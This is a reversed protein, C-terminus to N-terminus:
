NTHGKMPWRVWQKKAAASWRVDGRRPAWGSSRPISSHPGMGEETQHVLEPPDQLHGCGSRQLNRDHNRHTELRNAEQNWWGIKDHKADWWPRMTSWAYTQHKVMGHKKQLLWWMWDLDCRIGQIQQHKVHWRIAIPTTIDMIVPLAMERTTTEGWLSWRINSVSTQTPDLLSTGVREARRELELIQNTCKM